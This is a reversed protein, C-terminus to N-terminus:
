DKMWNKYMQNKTGKVNILINKLLMIM